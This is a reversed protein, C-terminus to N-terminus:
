FSWYEERERWLSLSTLGLQFNQKIMCNFGRLVQVIVSISSRVTMIRKKEPKRSNGDMDVEIVEGTLSEFKGTLVVGSGKM